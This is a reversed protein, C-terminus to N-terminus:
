SYLEVVEEVRHPINFSAILMLIPPTVFFTALLAIGSHEFGDVIFCAYAYALTIFLSASSVLFAVNTKTLFFILALTLEIACAVGSYSSKSTHAEVTLKDAVYCMYVINVLPLLMAFQFPLCLYHAVRWVAFCTIAYLMGLIACMM